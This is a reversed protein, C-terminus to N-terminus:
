PDVWPRDDPTSRPTPAAVLEPSTPSPPPESVPRKPAEAARKGEAKSNSPPLQVAKRAAAPPASSTQESQENPEWPAIACGHVGWALSCVVLTTVLGRSNM